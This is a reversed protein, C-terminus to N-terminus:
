SAIEKLIIRFTLTKGALESNFDLTATTKNVEKVVARLPGQPTMAQLKQGKEPIVGNDKLMAIPLEKVLQNNYSGYAEEPPITVTKEEGIKMGIVAKDFGKIMQGAGVKFQLPAYDRQENYIGAKQAEAKMSTDFVQGETTGLYDVKVVNGTKAKMTDCGNTLIMLVLLLFIIKYNKSLKTLM